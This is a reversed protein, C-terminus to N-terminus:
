RYLEEIYSNDGTYFVHKIGLERLACECSKCPKAMRPQDKGRWVYIKVKSFDVDLYRIKQVVMMEAHIRAPYSNEDFGRVKNYHAQTTSTKDTNWGRALIAGRYMAVCGTHTKYFDSKFSAQKAYVFGRYDKDNM